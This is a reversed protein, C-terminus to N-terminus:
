PLESSPTQTSDNKKKKDRFLEDIEIQNLGKTEPLILGLFACGLLAVVSMGYFVYNEGGDEGDGLLMSLTPFLRLASFSFIWKLAAVMSAYSRYKNPFIEAFVIWTVPGFSLSFAVQYLFIGIIAMWSLGILDLDMYKLQFYLGVIILNIGMLVGGTLLMLRRGLKDVLGGAIFSNTAQVLGVTILTAVDPLVPLNKVEKFIQSATMSMVSVGAFEYIFMISLLILIPLWLERSQIDKRFNIQDDESELVCVAEDPKSEDRIVPGGGVLWNFKLKLREIFEQNTFPLSAASVSSIKKEPPKYEEKPPPYKKNTVYKPDRLIFIPVSANTFLFMSRKLPNINCEECDCHGLWEKVEILQTQKNQLELFVPSEPLHISMLTFLIIQVAAGMICIERLNQAILGVLISTVVGITM